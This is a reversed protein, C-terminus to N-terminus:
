GETKQTTNIKVQQQTAAVFLDDQVPSGLAKRAYLYTLDFNERKEEPTNAYKLAADLADANFGLDILETKAAAKRANLAERSAQIDAVTDAFQAVKRMTNQDWISQTGAETGAEQDSGSLDVEAVAYM